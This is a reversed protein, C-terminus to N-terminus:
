GASAQNAAQPPSIPQISSSRMRELKEKKTRPRKTAHAPAAVSNGPQSAINEQQAQEDPSQSAPSAITQVVASPSQSTLAASNRAELRVKKTRPGRPQATAAAPSVPQPGDVGDRDGHSAEGAEMRVPTQAIQQQESPSHAQTSTAGAQSCSQAQHAELRAKQTRPRKKQSDAVEPQGLELGPSTGM